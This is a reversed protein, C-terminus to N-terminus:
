KQRLKIWGAQIMENVTIGNYPLAYGKSRVFDIDTYPLNVIDNFGLLEYLLLFSRENVTKLSNYYVKYKGNLVNQNYYLAFFAKKMELTLKNESM